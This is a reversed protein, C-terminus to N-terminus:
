VMSPLFILCKFVDRDMTDTPYFLLAMFTLCESNTVIYWILRFPSVVMFFSMAIAQMTDVTVKVEPIAMASLM